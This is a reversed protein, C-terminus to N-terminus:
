KNTHQTRTFEKDKHLQTKTNTNKYKYKGLRKSVQKGGADQYVGCAHSERPRGLPTLATKTGDSLHYQTVYNEVYNVGGTLVVIDDSLQITCHHPGNLVRFPGPQPGSGDVSIWETSDSFFGGILLLGKEATASSHYRRRDTTNQLHKWSGDQYIECSTEFCAVLCGSVLNVTPGSDMKRPFDNLGCSGQEPDTASWFEVSQSASSTESRSGIVLIGALDITM